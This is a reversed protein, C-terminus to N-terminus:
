KPQLPPAIAKLGHKARYDRYYTQGFRDTRLWGAKKRKKPRVGELQTQLAQIQLQAKALLGDKEDFGKTIKRFLLRKTPVDDDLQNFQLVQVKLDQHPRRPTSWAIQSIESQWDNIYFPSNFANHSNKANKKGKNSNELLLPSLLPKAVSVPWLGTAKWGGKINSASLAQERAKQYCSLFNQKGVPSSDTLLSLFGIQKRYYHKLPSFVSLHLPQLVHSTHPPLYLLHIKHQYCLYMFDVTEHSGHGDLVLLRRETLDSPRTRPIFLKELWEVATKDSTWDNKTATFQWDRFDSLDQPFWQQQVSKGKFIVLPPLSTGTASVCEIFSTWVRSGPMKKQVSRREANGVVLGNEGLGEMIGAEDMNYRNAPKIAQIEPLFFNKFWPRIVETSAGNARTSDRHYCKQTRIAPNRRLFAQMWHKGLPVHDGKVALMRQAFQKIQSHTPPLGLADQILVWETLQNEQTQSLRQLPSFAAKRCERGHMRDYLTARPVGWQKSAKRVSVGNAIAQLAQHIDPETCNVM